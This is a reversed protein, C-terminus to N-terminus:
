IEKMKLVETHVRGDEMDDIGRDLYSFLTQLAVQNKIVDKEKVIAEM